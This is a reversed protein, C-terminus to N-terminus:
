ATLSYVCLLVVVATFCVGTNVLVQLVLVENTSHIVIWFQKIRKGKGKHEM